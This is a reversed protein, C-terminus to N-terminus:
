YAGRTKDYNKGIEHGDDFAHDILKGSALLERVNGVREIKAQRITNSLKRVHEPRPTRENSCTIWGDSIWLKKSEKRKALWEVAPIDVINGGGMGDRLTTSYRGNEAIIRLEGRPGRGSYIAVIAAPCQSIIELVDQSTLGMSGSVDVLVAAGKRRRGKRSFLKMDTAYRHMRTPVIGEDSPTLHVSDTLKFRMVKDLKPHSVSMEGPDAMDSNYRWSDRARTIGLEEAEDMEEETLDSLSQQGNESTSGPQYTYTLNGDQDGEGGGTGGCKKGTPDPEPWETEPFEEKLREMLIRCGAITDEWSSIEGNAENKDFLEEAVEDVVEIVKEMGVRTAIERVKKSMGTKRTAILAEGIAKPHQFKPSAFAMELEEDTFPNSKPDNTKIGCVRLGQHVRCDEVSQLTVWDVDAPCEFDHPTIKVHMAEHARVMEGAANEHFPVVFQRKKLDVYGIKIDGSNRVEWTGSDDLIEPIPRARWIRM